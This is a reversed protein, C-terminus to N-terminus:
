IPVGLSIYAGFKKQQDAEVLSLFGAHLKGDQFKPPNLKVQEQEFNSYEGTSGYFLEFKGTSQPHIKKELFMTFIGMNMRSNVEICPHIKLSEQHKYILADVGLLGRHLNAYISKKIITQLTQVYEITIYIESYHKTYNKKNKNIYYIYFFELVYLNYYILVLM